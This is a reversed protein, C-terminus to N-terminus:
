PTTLPAPVNSEKHYNRGDLILVDDESSYDYTMTVIEQSEVETLEIIEGGDTIKYYYVLTIEGNSFDTLELINDNFNAESIVKTFFYSVYVGNPKSSASGGIFLTITVGLIILLVPLLIYIVRKRM